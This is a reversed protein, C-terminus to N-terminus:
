PGTSFRNPLLDSEVSEVDSESSDSESATSDSADIFEDLDNLELGVHMCM